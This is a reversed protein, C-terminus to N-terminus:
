KALLVIYFFYQKLQCCFIFMRHSILKEIFLTLNLIMKEPKSM